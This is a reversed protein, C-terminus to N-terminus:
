RPMVYKGSVAADLKAKRVGWGGPWRRAAKEKTWALESIRERVTVKGLVSDRCRRSKSVGSVHSANAMGNIRNKPSLRRNYPASYLILNTDIKL